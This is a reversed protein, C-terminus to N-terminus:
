GGLGDGGRPGVLLVGGARQLVAQVVSGSNRLVWTLLCCAESMSAEGYHKSAFEKSPTVMKIGVLKYGKQEFRQIIVGVLNREVGDPKIAIQSPHSAAPATSSFFLLAGGEGHGAAVTSCNRVPEVTCPVLLAVNLM